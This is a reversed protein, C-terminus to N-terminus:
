RASRRIRSVSPQPRRARRFISPLTTQCAQTIEEVRNQADMLAVAVRAESELRMQKYLGAVRAREEELETTRIQHMQRRTEAAELRAAELEKEMEREALEAADLYALAQRWRRTYSELLRSSGAARQRCVPLESLAPDSRLERIAPSAQSKEELQKTPQRIEAPTAAPEVAGNRLNEGGRSSEM